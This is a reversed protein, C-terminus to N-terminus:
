EEVAKIAYFLECWKIAALTLEANGFWWRNKALLPSFKSPMCYLNAPSCNMPNGDLCVIRHDKPIEGYLSEWVVRRKPKRREWFPIGYELSTVVWPEGNIVIEDGIKKTKNAQLMGETGRRFSEETFHSKYADGRVGTQWSKHGNKFRGDSSSNFGRANCYSKISNVSKNTGFKRNFLETLEKRSMLAANAELFEVQDKPYTNYTAM